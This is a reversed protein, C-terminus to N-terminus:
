SLRIDRDKDRFDRIQGSEGKKVEKKKVWSAM